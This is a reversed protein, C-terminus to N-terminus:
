HLPKPTSGRHSRYGTRNGSSILRTIRADRATSRIKDSNRKSLFNKPNRLFKEPARSFPRRSRQLHRSKDRRQFSLAVLRETPRDSASFHVQSSRNHLSCLSIYAPLRVEQVCRCSPASALWRSQPASIFSGNHHSRSLPFPLLHHWVRILASRFATWLLYKLNLM